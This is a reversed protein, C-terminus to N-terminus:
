QVGPNNIIKVKLTRDAEEAIYREIMNNQFNDYLAVVSSETYDKNSYLKANEPIPLSPMDILKDFNVIIKQYTRSMDVILRNGIQSPTDGWNYRARIQHIIKGTDIGEDIYMFTAGVYEPEKNVLPWYNTGSGRYYPSLGLHANLFRGKFSKLLQGKIISCGFAILLDPNSDIISDVYEKSNIEGKPLLIPNSSDETTDIFTKFFDEESQTRASLHQLRMQQISDDKRVLVSLSKEVGETYSALVKIQKSLAIYTRFFIHRPESGTLIIIRTMLSDKKKTEVAQKRSM